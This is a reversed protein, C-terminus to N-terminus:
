PTFRHKWLEWIRLDRAVVIGETDVLIMYPIHDVSLQKLYHADWGNPNDDININLISFNNESAKQEAQRLQSRCIDCWTAGFFILTAVESNRSEYFRQRHKASDIYAFDPMKSGESVMPTSRMWRQLMTYHYTHKAKGSMQEVLSRVTGDDINGILQYVVFPLYISGSEDRVYQRLFGLQDSEGRYREMLYRYESNSRSGKIHSATPHTANLNISIASNEIYFYLPSSMTPHSLSALVPREVKGTFLFLGKNAKATFSHYTSDGDYVTLTFVGTLSSEGSINYGQANCLSSLVLLVLLALYRTAPLSHIILRLIRIPAIHRVM